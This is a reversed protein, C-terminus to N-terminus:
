PKFLHLHEPALDLVVAAGVELEDKLARLEADGATEPISAIGENVLPTSPDRLLLDKIKM